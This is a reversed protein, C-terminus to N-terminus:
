PILADEPANDRKPRARIREDPEDRVRGARNATGDRATGPVALRKVDGLDPAFWEM